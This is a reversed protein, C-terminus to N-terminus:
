QVQLCYLFWGPLEASFDFTSPNGGPGGTAEPWIFRKFGPSAPVLSFDLKSVATSVDM